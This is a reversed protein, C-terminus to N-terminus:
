GETELHYHVRVIANTNPLSKGEGNVLLRKYFTGDLYMDEVKQMDLVNVAVVPDSTDM